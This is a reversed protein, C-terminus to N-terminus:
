AAYPPLEKGVSQSLRGTGDELALFNWNKVRSSPVPLNDRFTPLCYDSLVVYCGLLACKEQLKDQINFYGEKRRVYVYNSEKFDQPHRSRDFQYFNGYKSPFKQERRRWLLVLQELLYNTNNQCASHYPLVTTVDIFRFMKLATFPIRFIGENRLLTRQFPLRKPNKKLFRHRPCFLVTKIKQKVNFQM